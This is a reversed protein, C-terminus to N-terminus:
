LPVDDDDDEGFGDDVVNDYHRPAGERGVVVRCSGCVGDLLDYRESQCTTCIGSELEPAPLRPLEWRQVPEIRTRLAVTRAMEETTPTLAYVASASYLQTAVPAGDEGPVDIRLFGAGALEQERVYGGLRRHGMLELITWGEYTAKEDTM